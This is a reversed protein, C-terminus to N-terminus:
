TDAIALRVTECRSGCDRLLREIEDRGTLSAYEAATYGEGDRCVTKPNAGKQLLLQVVPLHGNMAAM